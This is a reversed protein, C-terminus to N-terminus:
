QLCHTDKDTLPFVINQYEDPESKWGIDRYFENWYYEVLCDDFDSCQLLTIEDKDFYSQDFGKSYPCRWFGYFHKCPAAELNESVIIGQIPHAPLGLSYCECGHRNSDEKCQFWKKVKM